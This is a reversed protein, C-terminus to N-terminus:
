LLLFTGTGRGSRKRRGARIRNSRKVRCLEARQVGTKRDTCLATQKNGQMQGEREKSVRLEGLAVLRAIEGWFSFRLPAHGLEHVPRIVEDLTFEGKLFRPFVEAQM